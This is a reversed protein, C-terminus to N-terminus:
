VATRNKPAARELLATGDHTRVRPVRESVTALAARCGRPARLDTVAVGSALPATDDDDTLVTLSSPDELGRATAKAVAEKRTWLAAFAARRDRAPLSALLEREARALTLTLVDPDLSVARVQEVDVGVATTALAVVVRSGAHAVSADLRHARTTLRPKGHPRGCRACARNLSVAGAEMGLCGGLVIRLLAAGALFRRADAAQRFAALRQREADDLLRRLPARAAATAAWWVHCEGESPVAIAPESMPRIARYALARAHRGVTPVGLGRLFSRSARM